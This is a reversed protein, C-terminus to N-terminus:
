KTTDNLLVKVIKIQVVGHKILYALVKHFRFKFNFIVSIPKYKESLM